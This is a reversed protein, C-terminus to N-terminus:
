RNPAPGGPLGNSMSASRLWGNKAGMLQRVSHVSGAGGMSAPNTFRSGTGCDEFTLM